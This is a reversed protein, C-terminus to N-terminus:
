KKRVRDKFLRDFEYMAMRRVGASNRKDSVIAKLRLLENYTADSMRYMLVCGGLLYLLYSLFRRFEYERDYAFARM